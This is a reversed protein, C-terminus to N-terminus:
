RPWTFRGIEIYETQGYNCVKAVCEEGKEPEGVTKWVGYHPMNKWDRDKTDRRIHDLKGGQGNARYVHFEGCTNGGARAMMEVDEPSAVARTRESYERWEPWSAPFSPGKWRIGSKWVATITYAEQAPQTTTTTTTTTVTGPVDDIADQISQCGVCLLVLAAAILGLGEWLQWQNRM